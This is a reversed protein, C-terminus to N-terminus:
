KELRAESSVFDAPSSIPDFRRAIRRTAELVQLLIERALEQDYM